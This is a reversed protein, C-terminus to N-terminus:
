VFNKCSTLGGCTDKLNKLDGKLIFFFILFLFKYKKRFKMGACIQGKWNKVLEPVVDECVSPKYTKLEVNRLLKPLYDSNDRIKGKL